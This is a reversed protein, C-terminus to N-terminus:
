TLNINMQYSSTGQSLNIKFKETKFTISWLSPNVIEEVAEYTFDKIEKNEGLLEQSFANEPYCDVISKFKEVVKDLDDWYSVILNSDDSTKFLQGGGSTMEGKNYVISNLGKILINVKKSDKHIGYLVISDDFYQWKIKTNRNLEIVYLKEPIIIKYSINFLYGNYSYHWNEREFSEFASFGGNNEIITDIINKAEQENTSFVSIYEDEGDLTHQLTSTIENKNIFKKYIPSIDQLWDVEIEEVKRQEKDYPKFKECDITDIFKHKFFNNKLNGFNDWTKYVGHIVNSEYFSNRKLQGNEHWESFEGNFKGNLQIVQRAKIGNDHYSIIIGDDQIGNTFNVEAQLQGNEHYIRTIGHREGKENLEIELHINGNDHYTKKTKKMNM